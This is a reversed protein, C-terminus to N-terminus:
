SNVKAVEDVAKKNMEEGIHVAKQLNEFQRMVSVLRVASEASGVNSGELKGQQVQAAAPASAASPGATFLTSGQKMLGSPDTFDIVSIQGVATGAQYVVGDPTVTFPQSPDVKIPGTAPDTSRLPYGEPTVLNGTTSLRFAGNRTYAVAGNANVAFFGRGDLALDLPNATARLAGQSYDIYNKEIVPMTTPDGAEADNQEPSMYLNYFERDTKYGSTDSNALNNALLELSEMRAQLGGAATM